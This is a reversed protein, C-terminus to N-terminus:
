GFFAMRKSFFSIEFGKRWSNLHITKEYCSHNSCLLCLASLLLCSLLVFFLHLPKTAAVLTKGRGRAMLEEIRNIKKRLKTFV